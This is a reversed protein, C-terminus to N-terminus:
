KRRSKTENNSLIEDKLRNKESQSINGKKFEMSIEALKQATPSMLPMDEANFDISSSGLELRMGRKKLPKMSDDQKLPLIPVDVHGGDFRNSLDGLDGMSMSNSNDKSEDLSMGLLSLSMDQVDQSNLAQDISGLGWSDAQSKGNKNSNSNNNNNNSINVNSSHNDSVLFKDVSGNGNSAGAGDISFAGISPIHELSVNTMDEDTPWDWTLNQGGFGGAEAAGALFAQQMLQKERDTLSGDKGGDRQEQALKQERLQQDRLLQHQQQLMQMENGNASGGRQLLKELARRHDSNPRVLGQPPYSFNMGPDLPVATTGSDDLILPADLDFDGGLRNHPANPGLSILNKQRRAVEDFEPSDWQVKDNKQKAKKSKRPKRPTKKTTKDNNKKNKNPNLSSGKSDKKNKSRNRRKAPSPPNINGDVLAQKAQFKRRMASNWRNKVANESRGPLLKAIECWRNGMRNQSEILIKDEEESWAGKKIRPDLHNFWRERCQKGIRGPIREAIESWKTVGLKICDIIIKDEDKTWPGKVLGPRLVKQWRHLCQVDSRKGQLFETSIRRWNKPGIAEVAKRLQEDEDKSWRGGGSTTTSGGEKVKRRRPAKKVETPVNTGNKDKSKSSGSKSNTSGPATRTWNVGGSPQSNPVNGYKSLFAKQYSTLESSNDNSKSGASNNNADDTKVEVDFRPTKKNVVRKKDQHDISSSLDSEDDRARSSRKAVPRRPSPDVYSSM